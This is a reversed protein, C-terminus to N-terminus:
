SSAIGWGLFPQGASIYWSLSFYLFVVIMFVMRRWSSLGLGALFVVIIINEFVRSTVDSLFYTSLYFVTVSIVFFNDERFKKGQFYYICLIGFWFVFNYGSVSTMEFNYINGQRAGLFRALFSMGFASVVSFAAVLVIKVDFDLKTKRLFDVFVYIFIVFFFSSHIFPTILFFLWRLKIRLSFWGILFFSIALGQRIHVIYKSLVQPFVLLFLLFFLNKKSVKLVLYASIFSMFFIIILLTKESDFFLRLFANFGLWIPENFLASMYGESFYRLFIVDSFEAYILYNSRDLIGEMPILFVLCFAYILSVFFISLQYVAQERSKEKFYDNM